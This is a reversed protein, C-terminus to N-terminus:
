LGIQRTHHGALTFLLRGAACDFLHIVYDSAMGALLQGDPSLCLSHLKLGHTRWESLVARDAVRCIRLYEEQLEAM